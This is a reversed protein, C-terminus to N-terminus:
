RQSCPPVHPTMALSPKQPPVTRGPVCCHLVDAAWDTRIEGQRHAQPCRARSGGQRGGSTVAKRKECVRASGTVPKHEQHLGRGEPRTVRLIRSAKADPAPPASATHVIVIRGPPPQDRGIRMRTTFLARKSQRIVYERICSRLPQGTATAEAVHM